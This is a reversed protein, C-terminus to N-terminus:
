FRMLSADAELWAPPIRRNRGLGQFRDSLARVAAEPLQVAFGPIEYSLFFLADGVSTLVRPNPSGAGPRIDRVLVTGAGSGDSKWVERGSVGDDADFFLTGAVNAM